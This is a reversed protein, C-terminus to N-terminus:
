TVVSPDYESELRMNEVGSQTVRERSVHDVTATMYRLDLEMVIPNDLYIKDGKVAMVIREWNIVYQDPTWQKIDLGDRRPTIKDMKLDRIWQENPKMCIAIRDGVKFKSPRDVRVWLQGVPTLEDVVTAVKKAIRKSPCDVTILSRRGTGLAKVVTGNGEGRLVVEDKRIVLKGEINYLGEKLLVAGPAEVNDLAEQIMATADAGDVPPTLVIKNEYHPIPKEGWMYGVRSFDIHFDRASANAAICILLLTLIKKM